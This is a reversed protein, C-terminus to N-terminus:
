VALVISLSAVFRRSESMTTLLTMCLQEVKTSGLDLSNQDFCLTTPRVRVPIAFVCTYLSASAFLSMAFDMPMYSSENLSQRIGFNFYNGDPTPRWGARSRRGLRRTLRKTASPACLSAVIVIQSDTHCLGRGLRTAPSISPTLACWGVSFSMKLWPLQGALLQSALYQFCLM